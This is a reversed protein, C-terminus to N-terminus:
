RWEDCNGDDGLEGQLERVMREESGIAPRPLNDVNLILDEPEFPTRVIHTGPTSTFLVKISAMVSTDVVLRLLSAFM